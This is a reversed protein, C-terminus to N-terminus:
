ISLARGLLFLLLGTTLGALLDDIMIGSGGHINQDLWGILSPKYIDLVRFILFAAAAFWITQPIFILALWMGAFEDAVVEGPDNLEYREVVLSCFLTSIAVYVALFFLQTNLHFDSFFLWWLCLAFVSGVTGPAPKIFGLGFLSVWLVKPDILLASDFRM